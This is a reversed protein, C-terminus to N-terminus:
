RFYWVPARIQSFAELYASYPVNNGFDNCVCPLHQSVQSLFDHPAM